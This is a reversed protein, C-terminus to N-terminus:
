LNGGNFEWKDLDRCEILKDFLLAEKIGYCCQLENGFFCHHKCNECCKLKNILYLTGSIYAEKINDASIHSHTAMSHRRVREAFESAKKEIEDNM